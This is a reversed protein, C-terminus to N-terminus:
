LYNEWQTASFRTLRCLWAPERGVAPWHTQSCRQTAPFVVPAASWLLTVGCRVGRHEWLGTTKSVLRGAREVASGAQGAAALSTSAHLLAPQICLV